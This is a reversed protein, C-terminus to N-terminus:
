LRRVHGKFDIEFRHTDGNQQRCSAVIVVGRPRQSYHLAPTAPCSFGKANLLSQLNLTQVQSFGAPRSDDSRGVDGQRLFFIIGFLAVEALLLLFFWRLGLSSRGDAMDM